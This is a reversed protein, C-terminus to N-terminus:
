KGSIWTKIGFSGVATKSSLNAYQLNPKLNGKLLVTSIGNFSSYTNALSGWYKLKKTSRTATYRKTLRGSIQFKVGGVHKYKIEQLVIDKLSEVRPIFKNNFLNELPDKINKIINLKNINYETYIKEHTEFKTKELLKDLYKPINKRNKSIKMTIMKSLIDSNLCYHKLNILNFKIKKKYVKQMYMKLIHLYTYNYKSENIYLLQKYYLYIKLKKLSNKVWNKYFKILNERYFGLYKNNFKKSDKKGFKNVKILIYKYENAKKLYEIGSYKILYFRKKLKTKIKQNYLKALIIKLKKVYYSTQRDYTYLTFIVKDNTHKFEGNSVYIKHSSLVRSLRSLTIRRLKYEIKSNFINLYSKILYVTSLTVQPILAM